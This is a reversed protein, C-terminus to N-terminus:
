WNNANAPLAPLNALNRRPAAAVNPPALASNPPFPPLDNVNPPALAANPPALAANRAAAQQRGQYIMISVVAGGAFMM